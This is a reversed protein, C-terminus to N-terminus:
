RTAPRGELAAMVEDGTLVVWNEAGFRPPRVLPMPGAVNRLDTVLDTSYRIWASVDAWDSTLEPGLSRATSRTSRLCWALPPSWVEALPMHIARKGLVRMYGVPGGIRSRTGDALALRLTLGEPMRMDLRGTRLGSALGPFHEQLGGNIACMGALVSRAVLGPAVRAPVAGQLLRQASPTWLKSVQNHFDIYAPDAKDSTLHNCDRCLGYM